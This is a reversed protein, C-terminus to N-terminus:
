CLCGAYMPYFALDVGILAARVGDLRHQHRRAVVEVVDRQRSAGAEPRDTHGRANVDGHQASVGAGGDAGSRRDLRLAVHSDIRAGGLVEHHHPQADRGPGDAHAAADAHQADAIM